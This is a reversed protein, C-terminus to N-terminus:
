CGGTPACPTVRGVWAGFFIPLRILFRVPSRATMRTRAPMITKNSRLDHWEDVSRRIGTVTSVGEFLKDPSWAVLGDTAGAGGCFFNGAEVEGGPAVLRRDVEGALAGAKAGIEVVAPVVKIEVAGSNVFRGGSVTNSFM